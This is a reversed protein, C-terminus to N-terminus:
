LMSCDRRSPTLSSGLLSQGRVGDVKVKVLDGPLGPGDFYVKRNDRSRGMGPEEVLVEVEKGVFGELKERSIREQLRLVAQLRRDKVEQLVDDPWRSAAAFPRPSYAFVFCSDFRAEEMLRVTEEFDAETEGPFGVIIDTTVSVGPVTERLRELKELYERATYGRRMKELLPDSGSQVPLHLHECVHSCDRMAEFLEEVADWPHSTIFRIREIGPIANVRELLDPFSCPSDRPSDGDWHWSTAGFPVTGAKAGFPVTGKGTPMDPFRKGYSNVNQGLLMVERYGRAALDQVEAIVQEPPRSVEPGRTYPVICYSCVKDCGEMVTVLGSVKGAHYSIQQFEPRRKEQVAAMPKREELISEILEPVEYIQAPGSIFDVHPMRKFIKGRQAKAMCGMVGIVLEPRRGKLERFTGLQSWVKDEAHERVSCTNLLIVDATEEEETLAYGKELLLGTVEESDRVNMQCGYVQIFLKRM